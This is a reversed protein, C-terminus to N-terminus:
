DQSKCKIKRKDNDEKSPNLKQEMENGGKSLLFCYKLEYQM